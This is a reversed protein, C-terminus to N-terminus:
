FLIGRDARDLKEFLTQWGHLWAREIPSEGDAASQEALVPLMGVDPGTVSALDTADRSPSPLRTDVEDDSYERETLPPGGAIRREAIGLLNQWRPDRANSIVFLIIMLGALLLFLRFQLSRSRYNPARRRPDDVDFRLPM